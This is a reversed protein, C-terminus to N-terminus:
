ASPALRQRTILRSMVSLTISASMPAPNPTRMATQPEFASLATGISPANGIRNWVLMSAPPSANAM